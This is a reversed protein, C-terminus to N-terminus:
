NEELAENLAEVAAVVADRPVREFAIMQGNAQRVATALPAAWTNEWVVLLAATGPTLDEAAEVLDDDNLLEARGSIAEFADALESDTVELVEVDGDLSKAAWALDLIRVVGREALDLVAAAVQSRDTSGDFGLIAVDVPGMTDIDFM